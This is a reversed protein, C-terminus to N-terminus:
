NDLITGFLQSECLLLIYWFTWVHMKSTFLVLFPILSGASMTYQTLGEIGCAVREVEFMCRLLLSCVFVHFHVLIYLHHIHWSQCQQRIAGHNM